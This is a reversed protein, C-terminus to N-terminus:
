AAGGVLQAPVHVEDGFVKVVLARCVAVMPSEAESEDDDFDIVASWYPREKSPAGIWVNHKEILSGSQCWNKSPKYPVAFEGGVTPRGLQDYRLGNDKETLGAAKAVAWDLANGSLEATKVLITNAM